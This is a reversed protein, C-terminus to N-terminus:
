RVILSLSAKIDDTGEVADKLAGGLNDLMLKEVRDKELAKALRFLGPILWLLM